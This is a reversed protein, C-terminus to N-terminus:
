CACTGTPTFQTFCDPCTGHDKKPVHGGFAAAFAISEAAESRDFYGAAPVPAPRPPPAPKRRLEKAGRIGHAKRRGAPYELNAYPLPASPDVLARRVELPVAEAFLAIMAAEADGPRATAGYHVWLRRTDLMKVPWGGAHPARAGIRTDYFQKVRRSTDTGAKGIYVVSESAPWLARLRLTLRAADAAANDILIEPRVRILQDVSHEDIPCEVLGTHQQPDETTAIVYVGPKELPVPTGWRVAGSRLVNANRFLDNVTTPM